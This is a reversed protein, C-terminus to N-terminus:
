CARTSRKPVPPGTRKTRWSGSRAVKASIAQVSTSVRYWPMTATVDAGGGLRLLVPGGRGPRRRRMMPRAESRTGAPMRSGKARATRICASDQRARAWATRAASCGGRLPAAAGGAAPDASDKAAATRGPSM